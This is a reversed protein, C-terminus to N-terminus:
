HRLRLEKVEIDVRLTFLDPNEQRMCLYCVFINPECISVKHLSFFRAKEVIALNRHPNLVFFLIVLRACDETIKALLVSVVWSIQVFCPLSISNNIVAIVYLSLQVCVVHILLKVIVSFLVVDFRQILNKRKKAFGPQSTASLEYCAVGNRNTIETNCSDKERVNKVVRKCSAVRKCIYAFLNELLM